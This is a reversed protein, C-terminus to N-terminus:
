IAVTLYVARCYNRHKRQVTHDLRLVKTSLNLLIMLISINDNSKLILVEEVSVHEMKEKRQNTTQREYESELM